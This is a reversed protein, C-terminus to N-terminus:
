AKVLAGAIEVLLSSAATNVHSDSAPAAVTLWSLERSICGVRERERERERALEMKIERKMDPGFFNARSLPVREIM